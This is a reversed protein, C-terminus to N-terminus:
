AEELEIGLAECLRRVQRRTPSVLKVIEHVGSSVVSVRLNTGDFSFRYAAMASWVKIVLPRSQEQESAHVSLLTDNLWEETVLEDDDPRHSALYNAALEWAEKMGMGSHDNRKYRTGLETETKTVCRLVTEAAARLEDNTM